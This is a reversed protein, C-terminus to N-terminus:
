NDRLIALIRLFEVYLWILTVLLGFAASWAYKRPAGTAVGKGIAEFDMILSFVALLVAAAGVLIGLPIGMVEIGRVGWPSQIAGTFVLLMNVLSFAAYSILAILMFRQFKPTVRVKGSRYLLLTASFTIVTALVAQMVVGPYTAEFFASLGGLFLGEAAAYSLILAPSPERKFANVLGLAIGAFLGVIMLTYGIGTGLLSWSIAAGVVVVGLAMGTRMTVDEYTMAAQAGYAPAGLYPQAAYPQAAQQAAYAAHADMAPQAYGPVGQQAGYGPQGQYGGQVPAGYSPQAPFGGQQQYGAPAQYQAWQGQNTAQAAVPQSPAKDGFIRSNSLVPNTM